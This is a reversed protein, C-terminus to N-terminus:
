PWTSSLHVRTHGQGQNESYGWQLPIHHKNRRWMRVFLKKKNQKQKQQQTTATKKLVPDWKLRPLSQIQPLSLAEGEQTRLNCIHAMGLKLLM